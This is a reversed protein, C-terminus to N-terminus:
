VEEATVIADAPLSNLVAGRLKIEHHRPTIKTNPSVSLVRNVTVRYLKAADYAQAAPKSAKAM